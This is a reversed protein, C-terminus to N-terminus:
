AAHARAATDVDCTPAKGSFGNNAAFSERVFHLAVKRRQRMHLGRLELDRADPFDCLRREGHFGLNAVVKGARAGIAGTFLADSIPRHAPSANIRAPPVSPAQLGTR